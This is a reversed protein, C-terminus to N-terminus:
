AIAEITIIPMSFQNSGTGDWYTTGHLNNDNTSTAYARGQMKLTKPTTWTAQRGTNTNATGGIPITWNFTYRSEQYTASRNHRAFVVESGDIFFKYHAIAHSGGDWYSSFDFSYKVRTAGAPPTYVITSGTLDRYTSDMGLQTTVNEVTYSGSTVNVTSGDCISSVAEIIEGPRHFAVWKASDWVRVINTDTEYIMQGEIPSNPRTSSTCIRYGLLKSDVEAKTYTNAVSFSSNSFVEVLDGTSLATELIISTGNSATYDITRAILIGNIYVLESGPTYSLTVSYDDLGSLTTIPGAVVETWRVGQKQILDDVETKTYTNAVTFGSYSIVEVISGAILPELNSIMSGSSAIYDSTRILKVGNLYVEEIGPTYVLTLSNDDNGSLSTEGGVATKVWRSTSLSAASFADEWATGDYVKMGNFVTDFYVEGVQLDSGDISTTPATSSAGLYRLLGLSGNQQVEIWFDGNWVYIRGTDLDQWVQNLEPSSPPDSTVAASSGGGGGGTGWELGDETSNVKIVQGATGLSSLGTGGKTTPIVEGNWSGSVSGSFYANSASIDALSFSVHSTDINVAEDPEPTYGDFFKFTGDSADRFVGAHAYGDSYYGGAFGLDPNAEEKAHATGGSVYTAGPDSKVVVFQTPTAAGVVLGDGTSINFGAPDVGTVRIDMGPIYLNEATYTISGSSFVANTITSDLAANLYILNDHTAVTKTNETTTTGAVHLNGDVWLDKAVGVGGSVVLAGTTASTAETTNSITIANSSTAGRDTVTEFTDSESTLYSGIPQYTSSASDQTLYTTSASNISLYLEEANTQSLFELDADDQTLYILGADSETLYTENDVSFEGSGDTRLIGSTGGLESISTLNNNLPQYMSGASSMLLYNSLSDISAYQEVADLIRLYTASANLESLYISSATNHVREDTYYLNSGETVLDTNLTEQIPANSSNGIWIKNQALNPLDSIVNSNIVQIKGTTSNSILCYAIKQVNGTTPKTETLEGDTGIYLPSNQTFSSTDIDDIIGSIIINSFDEDEIDSTTIGIAIHDTNNSLGSAYIDQGNINVSSIYVPTLKNITSGSINGVRLFISEGINFYNSGDNTATWKDLSENWVISVDQSSGRNVEIGADLTPTASAGSNLTIVNDEVTLSSVNLTTTDGSVTLNGLVNLDQGVYLDETIGVGGSVTLAGTVTSSSPDGSTINASNINATGSLTPSSPIGVTVSGSNASVDIENETGSIYNVINENNWVSASSNYILAQNDLPTTIAVDVLDHLHLGPIARVLIRGTSAHVRTVAAIPFTWNPASPKVNTLQGPNAPDSYLLNGLEWDSTDVKNVFGFQTVFGFGDADIEETTIGLLMEPEYSQTSTAPSVTVTDGASGAFMVVSMNPIATSGSANKVRIVHEQGVQLTVNNMQLKLTEFDIDWSLTGAEESSTEPTTDFTIYDPYVISNVSILSGSTNLNIVNNADDYAAVVNTNTANTFLPAVYDQVQEQTLTSGEGTGSGLVVWEGGQYIKAVSASTNFYLEGESGEAPDSGLNVLNVGTLFKRAM